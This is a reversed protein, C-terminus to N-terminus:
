GYRNPNLLNLSVTPDQRMVLEAVLQGSIPGLSMGMMGLGTAVILNNLGRIRGLYPMGDPPCPRLGCWVAARRIVESTFEPYYNVISNRFGEIRDPNTHSSPRGIEMTGVFRVGDLMPTMAVRAETLFAPISPNQPPYKLTLGYGKGALMPMGIGLPKLLSHSWVGAALIFEEAPFEVLDPNPNSTRKAIVCTIRGDEARLSSIEFGEVVEGGRDLVRQRLAEMFPPPTLHADDHFFVGGAVDMTINPELKALENRDLVEAKLGMSNAKVATHKEEAFGRETRSLMLIGNQAFGVDVGMEHVMNEFIRRSWLNLDRLVPGCREVHSRNAARWFRWCWALIDPTPIGDIGFPSRRNPLMRLGTAVMGPSALPVFHSPVIIGGNGFSCGDGPRADREIVTVAFDRALLADAACLGVIGGGVVIVRRAAM